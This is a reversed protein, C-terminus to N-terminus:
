EKPAWSYPLRYARYIMRNEVPPTGGTSAFDTLYEWVITGQPDIKAREREREVEVRVRDRRELEGVQHDLAGEACEVPCAGTGGGEGHGRRGIRDEGTQREIVREQDDVPEARHGEDGVSRRHREHVSRTERPGAAVEEPARLHAWAEARDPRYSRHAPRAGACGSGM